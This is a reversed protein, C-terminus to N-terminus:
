DATEVWEKIYAHFENDEALLELFLTIKEEELSNQLLNLFSEELQFKNQNQVELLSMPKLYNSKFDEIVNDLSNFLKGSVTSSFVTKKIPEKLPQIYNRIVEPDDSVFFRKVKVGGQRETNEKCTSLWDYIADQPNTYVNDAFVKGTFPCIYIRKTESNVSPRGAGIYIEAERWVKGAAELKSLAEEATSYIVKDKVFVVPSLGLSQGLCFLYADLLEPKRQTKLFRLLKKKTSGSVNM